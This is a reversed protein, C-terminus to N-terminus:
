FPAKEEDEWDQQPHTTAVKHEGGLLILEDAVVETIYRKIKQKDEYHRTQLRGEIYVQTGKVLYQSVNDARWLVINHWDTKEKYEGSSQDKQRYSTAISFTAVCIGSPTHKTEADKGLRGILIVKNVSRSSM